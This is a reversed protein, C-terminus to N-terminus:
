HESISGVRLNCFHLVNRASVFCIQMENLNNEASLPVDFQYGNAACVNDGVANKVDPRNVCVRHKSILKNKNLIFIQVPPTHGGLELAWGAVFIKNDKPDVHDIYGFFTHDDRVAKAYQDMQSYAYKAIVNDNDIFIEVRGSEVLRFNGAIPYYSDEPLKVSLTENGLWRSGSRISDVWRQWRGEPSRARENFVFDLIDKVASGDTVESIPHFYHGCLFSALENYEADSVGNLQGTKLFNRFNKQLIGNIDFCAAGALLVPKGLLIAEFGVSSNITLVAAAQSVVYISQLPKINRPIVRVKDGLTEAYALAESEAILNYSRAVAAPHGKIVVNFGKKLVQPVVQHLFDLPSKYKSHLQTNLDDKLQLPIFIYPFLLEGTESFETTWTLPADILGIENENVHSKSQMSVWTERPFDIVNQIVGLPADVVSASGNTGLTDFYITKHFPPRTPGLESFIIPISNQAGFKRVAGNESWVLIADFQYFSYIREIIKFYFETVEGAGEVLDLWVKLADDNWQQDFSKIKEAESIDMRISRICIDPNNLAYRDSIQNNAFYRFDFDYKKSINLMAKNMILGVDHFEEFYNRIPHPEIYVLINKM